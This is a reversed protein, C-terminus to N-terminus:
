VNNLPISDLRVCGSDPRDPDFVTSDLTVALRHNVPIAKRFPTDKKIINPAIMKLLNEFDSSKMRMWCYMECLNRRVIGKEAEFSALGYGFRRPRRNPDKQSGLIAILIAASAATGADEDDSM